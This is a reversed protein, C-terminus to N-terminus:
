NTFCYNFSGDKVMIEIGLGVVEGHTDAQMEEYMEPTLVAIHIWTRKLYAAFRGYIPKNWTSM